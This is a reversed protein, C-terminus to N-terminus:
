EHRVLTAMADAPRRLALGLRRLRRSAPLRRLRPPRPYPTAYSYYLTPRLESYFSYGGVEFWAGGSRVYQGIAATTGAMGSEELVPTWEGYPNLIALFDNTALADLMARASRFEVVQVGAQNIAASANLRNFWDTVPVVTWGGAKPGRELSVLGIKPRVPRSTTALHEIAATVLDTVMQAQDTGVQGGIRFLFGRRGLTTGCFYPGNSSDALVLTAQSQPTPRNVFALKGQWKDAVSSGLWTRGDATISIPVPPDNDPRMIAGAGILSTLGSPGVVQTRWGAPHDAPQREFFAPRFAAGVSESSNLPCVLRQIQDPAFRLRAPLAFELVTKSAPEVRATFDVGDARAAITVTVAIDPSTYTLRLTEAAADASWRFPRSLSDAAFDAAGAAGGEKYTVRWLGDEGSQLISGANGRTAVSRISGNADSLTLAFADSSVRDRQRSARGHRRPLSASSEHIVPRYDSGDAGHGLIHSNSRRVPM